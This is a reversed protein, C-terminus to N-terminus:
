STIMQTLISNSLRDGKVLTGTVLESSCLVDRSYWQSLGSCLIFYAYLPFTDSVDSILQTSVQCSRVAYQWWSLVQFLANISPFLFAHHVSQCPNSQLGAALWQEWSEGLMHSVELEVLCHSYAIFSDDCFCETCLAIVPKFCCMGPYCVMYPILVHLIEHLFLKLNSKQLTVHRSWTSSIKTNWIYYIFPLIRYLYDWLGV